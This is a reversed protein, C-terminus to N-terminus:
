EDADEAELRDSHTLERVLVTAYSGAPLTFTLVIGEATAEGSLDDAYVFAYRRTGALLKGHAAFAERPIGADALTAAERREAEDKAAFMKKGFMPGTPVTERADLRAQEAALDVANFMGGFPWKKMVDGPIVTRLLGDGIRRAVHANFLASQAASLGLRRLFGSARV